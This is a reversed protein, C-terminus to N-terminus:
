PQTWESAEQPHSLDREGEVAEGSGTATGVPTGVMGSGSAAKQQKYALYKVRDRERDERTKDRSIYVMNRYRESHRLERANRCATERSMVSDFEVRIPRIRGESKSGLRQTTIVRKMAMEPAIHEAGKIIWTKLSSKNDQTIEM